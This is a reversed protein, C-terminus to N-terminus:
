NFPTPFNVLNLGVSPLNLSSNKNGDIEGSKYSAQYDKYNRTGVLESPFPKNYFGAIYSLRKRAEDLTIYGKDKFSPSIFYAGAQTNNGFDGDSKIPFKVTYGGPTTYSTSKRLGAIYNIIFQLRTVEGGTVGKRLKRDINIEPPEPKTIVQSPAPSGPATPLQPTEDVKFDPGDKKFLKKISDGAFLYTGIAAAAIGLYILNKNKAAARGVRRAAVKKRKSIM